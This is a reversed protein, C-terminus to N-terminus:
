IGCRVDCRPVKVIMPTTPTTGLAIRLYIGGWLLPILTATLYDDDRGSWDGRADVIDFGWPVLVRAHWDNALM